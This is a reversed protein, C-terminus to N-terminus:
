CTKYLCKKQNHRWPKPTIFLGGIKLLYIIDKHEDLRDWGYKSHQIIKENSERPIVLFRGVFCLCLSLWVQVWPVLHSWGLVGFSLLLFKWCRFNILLFGVLPWELVFTWSTQILTKKKWTVLKMGHSRTTGHSTLIRLHINKELPTVSVRFLVDETDCRFILPRYLWQIVLYIQGFLFCCGLNDGLKQSGFFMLFGKVKIKQSAVIYCPTMEHSAYWFNYCCFQFLCHFIM